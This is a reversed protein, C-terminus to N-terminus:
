QIWEHLIKKVSDDFPHNLLKEKQSKDGKLQWNFWTTMFYNRMHHPLYVQKGEKEIWGLQEYESSM